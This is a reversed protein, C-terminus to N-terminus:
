IEIKKNYEKLEEMIKRTVWVRVWGQRDTSSDIFLQAHSKKYRDKVLKKLILIDNKHTMSLEANFDQKVWKSLWDAFESTSCDMKKLFYKYLKEDVYSVHEWVAKDTEDNIVKILVKKLAM